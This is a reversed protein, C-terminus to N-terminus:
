ISSHFFEPKKSTGETPGSGNPSKQLLNPDSDAGTFRRIKRSGIVIYIYIILVVWNFIQWSLKGVNNHDIFLYASFYENGISKGTPPKLFGNWQFGILLTM